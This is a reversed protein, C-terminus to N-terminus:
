QSRIKELIQFLFKVFKLQIMLLSIIYLTLLEKSDPLSNSFKEIMKYSNNRLTSKVVELNKKSISKWSQMRKLSGNIILKLLGNIMKTSNLQDKLNDWSKMSSDPTNMVIMFTFTEVTFPSLKVWDLTTPLLFNEMKALVNKEESSHKVLQFAMTRNKKRTWKSQITKLTSYSKSKEIEKIKSTAKFSVKKSIDMSDSSMDISISGIPNIFNHPIRQSTKLISINTHQRSTPNILTPLNLISHNVHYHIDPPNM